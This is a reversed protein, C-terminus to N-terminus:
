HGPPTAPTAPKGPATAAGADVVGADVVPGPTGGDGTASLNGGIGATPATSGMPATGTPSTVAGDAAAGPAPGTSDAKKCAAIGLSLFATLALAVAGRITTMQM